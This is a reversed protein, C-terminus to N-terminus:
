SYERGLAQCPHRGSVLGLHFSLFAAEQEVPVRVILVAIDRFERSVVEIGQKALYHEFPQLVSHPLEVRFAALWRLPRPRSADVAAKAADGYARTLGGAGLKIGGFYRTVVCLVNTLERRTLIRLIPPGATGSPEGDDSTRAQEAGPGIRWAWAHHSADRREDRIQRVLAQAAETAPARLIRAIFRSKKIEVEAGAERSIVNM